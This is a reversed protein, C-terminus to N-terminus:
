SVGGRTQVIEYTDLPYDAPYPQTYHILACRPGYFNEDFLQIGLAACYEELMEDTFRDRIRRAQYREPREFPFRAGYEHWEWRECQNTASITRKEAEVTTRAPGESYSFQVGGPQGEGTKPNYTDEVCDVVVGRSPLTTAMYHVTSDPSASPHFVAVWSSKTGVLLIKPINLPELRMLAEPLGAEFRDTATPTRVKSFWTAIVDVLSDFPAELFGVRKTVPLFKGGLIKKM